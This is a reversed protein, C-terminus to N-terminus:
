SSEFDCGDRVVYVCHRVAIAGSAANGTEPDV